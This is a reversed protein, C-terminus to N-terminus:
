NIKQRKRTIKAGLVFPKPPWKEIFNPKWRSLASETFIMTKGLSFQYKEFNPSEFISLFDHFFQHLIHHSFFPWFTVGLARFFWNKSGNQGGWVRTKKLNQSYFHLHNKAVYFHAFIADFRLLCAEWIGGLALARHGLPGPKQDITSSTAKEFVGTAWPGAFKQNSVHKSM